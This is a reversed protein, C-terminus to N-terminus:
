GPRTRWPCRGRSAPPPWRVRATGLVAAPEIGHARWVAALAVMVAFLVPQVVDLRELSPAEPAGKLVGTPSWDLLPGLARECDAMRQAFVLSSELLEAGMGVWQAGLGPFVFVAKRGGQPATGRAGCPLPAGRRPSRPWSISCDPGTRVSSSRGNRSGPAASALSCAVDLAGPGPASTM